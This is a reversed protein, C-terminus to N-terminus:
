LIFQWKIGRIKLFNVTDEGIFCKANDSIFLKPAGVRGIFRRLCNVLSPSSADPVLDLHVARSSACTFLAVHVKSVVDGVPTPTVYLPGLYDIGTNTFPDSCQARFDPLPPAPVDAFPKADSKRCLNCKYVVRGVRARGYYSNACRIRRPAMCRVIILM